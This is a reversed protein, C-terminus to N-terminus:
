GLLKAKAAVFEEPTLQGKDLMDGLRILRDAM